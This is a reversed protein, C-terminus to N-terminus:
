SSGPRRPRARRSPWSRACASSRMAKEDLVEVEVGLKELAVARSAFEEPDLINPPENVLDRATIIAAALGEAIKAAKKAPGAEATMLVLRTAGGEDETPKKTKYRDFKYARLRAGLAMDALNQASAGGEPWDAVVTATRGSFRAAMAAGIETWDLKDREPMPGLGVVVIRDVTVDRPAPLVMVSKAKGKFREAAAARRVLDADVRALAAPSLALDDGVLVVLDGGSVPGLPQFEIAISDAM